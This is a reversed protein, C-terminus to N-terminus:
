LNYYKMNFVSRYVLDLTREWLKPFKKHYGFTLEGTYEAVKQECSFKLAIKLPAFNNGAKEYIHRNHVCIIGDEAQSNVGMHKYFNDQNINWEVKHAVPTQLLKTSRLSFGGNGVRQHNGFPDVYADQKVRWPAGIYDYQLFSNNWKKSHLVYGDAQVILVFETDIHKYLEFVIFKSYADISDLSYNDTLEVDIKKSYFDLKNDTILLVKKFVINIQSRWLAYVTKKINIGTIAVLTVQPLYLKHKRFIV